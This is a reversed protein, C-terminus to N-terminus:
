FRVHRCTLAIDARGWYLVNIPPEHAAAIAILPSFNNGDRYNPTRCGSV